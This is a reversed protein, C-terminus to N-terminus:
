TTGALLAIRGAHIRPGSWIIEPPRPKWWPSPVQRIDWMSLHGPGADVALAPGYLSARGDEPRPVNQRYGPASRPAPGRRPVDPRAWCPAWAPNYPLPEDHGLNPLHVGDIETTRILPREPQPWRQVPPLDQGIRNGHDDTLELEEEAGCLWDLVAALWARPRDHWRPRRHRGYSM